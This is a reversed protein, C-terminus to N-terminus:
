CGSVGYPEEKIHNGEDYNLLTVKDVNGGFIVEESVSCARVKVM